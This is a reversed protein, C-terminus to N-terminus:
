GLGHDLGEHAQMFFPEDVAALSEHVPIRHQIGRDGIEFDHGLFLLALDPVNPIWHLIAGAVDDHRGRTWFRQEAIDCDRHMRLIVTIAADDAYGHLKWQTSAANRDNGIGIDIRFEAGAAHFDRRRVIEVVIRDAFSM